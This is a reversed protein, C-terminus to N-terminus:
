DSRSSVTLTDIDKSYKCPAFIHSTLHLKPANIIRRGRRLQVLARAHFNSQDTHTSQLTGKQESKLTRKCLWHHVAYNNTRRAAGQPISGGAYPHVTPHSFWDCLMVSGEFLTALLGCIGRASPILPYTQLTTQPKYLKAHTPLHRPVDHLMYQAGQTVDAFVRKM